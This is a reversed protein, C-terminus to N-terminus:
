LARTNRSGGGCRRSFGRAASTAHDTGPMWEAEYGQMRKWRILIDQITNNLGHGLHLVDTVNPPPIVITYPKRDSRPVAHFLGNKEWYRYWKEEVSHPDYRKDMDNVMSMQVEAKYM